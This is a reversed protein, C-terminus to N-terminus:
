SAHKAEKNRRDVKGLPRENKRKVPISRIPTTSRPAGRKPENWEIGGDETGFMCRM